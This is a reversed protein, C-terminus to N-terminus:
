RLMQLTRLAVPHMMLNNSTQDDFLLEPRFNGSFFQEIFELEADELRMLNELYNITVDFLRDKDFHGLKTHLM